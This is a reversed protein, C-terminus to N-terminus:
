RWTMKSSLSSPSCFDRYVRCGEATTYTVRVWLGKPRSDVVEAKGGIYYMGSPIDYSELVFPSTEAKVIGGPSLKPIRHSYTEYSIESKKRHKMARWEEEREYYFRCSVNLDTLQIEGRNKYELTYAFGKYDYDAAGMEGSIKGARECEDRSLKRQRIRLSLREFAKHVSQNQIISHSKQHFAVLPLGSSSGYRYDTEVTETKPHYKVLQITREENETDRIKLKVKAPTYSDAESRSSRRASVFEANGRVLSYASSAGKPDGVTKAKLFWHLAMARDPSTGFGDRYYRGLSQCASGYGNEAALTCHYFAKEPIVNTTHVYLQSLSYHARANTQAAAQEYWYRAKELDIDTGGYGRYRFGLSSQAKVDGQTAKEKLEEVSVQWWTNSSKERKRAADAGKRLRDLDKKSSEYGQDAAKMHWSMAEFRDPSVGRGAEYFVGLYYQALRNEENAASRLLKMGEEVDPVVGYGTVLMYGLLSKADEHGSEVAMRLWKAASLYDRGADETGHFFRYGLRYQSAADGKEAKLILEDCNEEALGPIALGLILLFIKFCRKM